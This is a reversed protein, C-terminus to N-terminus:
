GKGVNDGLHAEEAALFGASSSGASILGSAARAKTNSSALMADFMSNQGQSKIQYLSRVANNYHLDLAKTQQRETGIQLGEVSDPTGLPSGGVRAGGSAAKARQAALTAHLKRRMESAEQEAGAFELQARREALEQNRRGVRRATRANQAQMRAAHAASAVGVWFTAAAAPAMGMGM